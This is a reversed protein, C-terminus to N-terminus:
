RGQLLADDHEGLHPPIDLTVAQVPRRGHDDGSGIAMRRDVPCEPEQSDASRRDVFNRGVLLAPHVHIRESVLEAPHVPRRDNACLGAVDVGAGEVVEPGRRGRGLSPSRPEMDVARDAEPCGGARRM